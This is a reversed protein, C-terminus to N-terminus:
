EESQAGGRRTEGKVPRISSKSPAAGGGATAPSSAKGFSKNLMKLVADTMDDRKKHFIVTRGLGQAIKQPDASNLEDKSFRLVLTYGHYECLRNVADQIEQYVTLYAKAEKRMFEKQMVKRFTDFDSTLKALQQERQAFEPSGDSFQKLEQQKAQIAQVKGKADAESQQFEAQLEERLIKFKDYENFIHGVDILGVKHQSDGATEKGNQGAATGIFYSVGALFVFGTATLILKRVASASRQQATPNTERRQHFVDQKVAGGPQGQAL